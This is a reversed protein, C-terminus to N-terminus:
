IGGEIFNKLNLQEDKKKEIYENYISDIKKYNEEFVEEVYLLCKPLLNETFSKSTTYDLLVNVALDKKNYLENKISNIFIKKKNYSDIKQEIIAINKETETGFLLNSYLPQKNISYLNNLDIIMISKIEAKYEIESKDPIKFLQEVPEKIEKLVKKGIKIEGNKLLKAVKSKFKM